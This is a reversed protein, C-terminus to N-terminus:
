ATLLATATDLMRNSFGWENDYWSVVKVLNGIIRTQEEDYVSSFTNHNFDIYIKVWSPGLAGFREIQTVSFPYSFSQNFCYIPFLTSRFFCHKNSCDPVLRFLLFIGNRKNSSDIWNGVICM